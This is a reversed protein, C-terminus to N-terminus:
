AKEFGSCCEANLISHLPISGNVEVIGNNREVLQALVGFFWLFPIKERYEECGRHVLDLTVTEKNCGMICFLGILLSESLDFMARKVGCWLDKTVIAEIGSPHRKKIRVVIKRKIFRGAGPLLPIGDGNLESLCKLFFLGIKM